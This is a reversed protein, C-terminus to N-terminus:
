FRYKALEISHGCNLFALAEIAFYEIRNKFGYM